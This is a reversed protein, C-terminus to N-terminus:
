EPMAAIRRAYEELAEAARPPQPEMAEIEDRLRLLLREGASPDFGGQALRAAAWADAALELPLREEASRPPAHKLRLHALEHALLFAREDEDVTRELMGRSLVIEFGYRVEALPQDTDYLRFKLWRCEDDLRCLLDQLAAKTDPAQWTAPPRPATGACGALMLMLLISLRKRRM